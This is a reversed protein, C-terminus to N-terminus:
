AALRRAVQALLAVAESPSDSLLAHQGPPVLARLQGDAVTLLGERLPRRVLALLADRTPGDLRARVMSTAGQVHFQQDFGLHGVDVDGTTRGTSRLTLGPDLGRVLIVLGRADNEDRYAQFETELPRVARVLEEAVPRWASRESLPALLRGTGRRWKEWLGVALMIGIGGVTILLGELMEM